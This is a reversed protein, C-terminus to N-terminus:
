QPVEEKQKESRLSNRGANKQLESANWLAQFIAELRLRLAEEPIQFAIATLHVQLRTLPADQQTLRELTVSYMSTREVSVGAKVHGVYGGSKSIWSALERMQGQLIQQLTEPEAAAFTGRGSAVSAGEHVQSHVDFTGDPLLGHTGDSEGHPHHHTHCGCDHTHGSM